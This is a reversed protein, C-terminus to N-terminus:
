VAGNAQPNYGGTKVRKVGWRKYLFELSEGILEKGQDSLIKRPVGYQCILHEYLARAITTAKRDPLPIAIPWRTYHDIITLIWKHGATTELCKGVLDIGVVDLPHEALARETLGQSM